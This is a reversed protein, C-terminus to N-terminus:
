QQKTGRLFVAQWPRYNSVIKDSIITKGDKKVNREFYVRAGWAAFDVQKVTGSPLDPDDEYKPEPPPTQSTIVPTTIEVERGDRTGYLYFTLRQEYPDIVSQILIHNRSDNKFKLDVTPVFVTADLGPPSDQEYYQVRYAHATREEIPMGSDLIARFLTTSVQCVGGGDGLVTRGNQIIYAQKYGTFATVDGLTKVFSFTEGPPILAGNIRSAALNINFIRSEISHQFLSTGTGILEKIGFSNVKETTIEPETVVVPTNVEANKLNGASILSATSAKISKDLNERDISIGNQSLKFTVVRGNEFSFAADIPEKEVSKFFSELKKYFKDDSFRYSPSLNIGNFYAYTIIGLNTIVNKGRGLEIAQDSLLESDYGLGIEEASVTAIKDEYKFTITKGTLKQNKVDFYNKVEEGTKRGFDVGAVRIGPYVHGENAKQFIIFSFGSLLFTALIVGIFFWFFIATVERIQKKKIKRLKINRPLKM